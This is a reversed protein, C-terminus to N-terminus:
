KAQVIKPKVNDGDCEYLKTIMEVKTRAKIFENCFDASYGKVIRQEFWIDDVFSFVQGDGDDSIWVYAGDVAHHIQENELADRLDKHEYLNEVTLRYLCGHVETPRFYEKTNMETKKQPVHGFTIV